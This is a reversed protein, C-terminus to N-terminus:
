HALIYIYLLATYSAPYSFQFFLLLIEGHEEECEVVLTGGVHVTHADACDDEARGCANDRAAGGAANVAGDAQRVCLLPGRSTWIALRADMGRGAGRWRGCVM